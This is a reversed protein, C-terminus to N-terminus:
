AEALAHVSRERAHMARLAAARDTALLAGERLRWTGGSMVARVRDAGGEDLLACAPDDGGEIAFVSVDAFKGHELSGYRDEVGIAEAGSRTAISLLTDPTLHPEARHLARVEALLDLDYNSASSDTGIGVPVGADLLPTVRPPPNDLYYNSRPCTVAGRAHRALLAIDSPSAHCLHVATARDLAGLAALYAVTSTGPPTFGHATRGATGALPGTGDLLLQVEAASEAVHIATPVGLGQATQQVEALLGPGATYPSHPSLGCVIREGYVEPSAPYRLYDLQPAVEEAHLGLLEWYYVGGLGAASASAVEAAGYAIDGVVTVGCSLSEEAGLVGSAEHDAIEWPGLATVLRPLWEAFPRSEIVGALATLTLHTHANVLGPTMVCGAFHEQPEEPHEAQLRARDGVEVIREGAVLVAGDRIPPRSVPLVWDASLLM